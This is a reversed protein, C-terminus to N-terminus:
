VCTPEEIARVDEAPILPKSPDLRTFLFASLLVMAAIPYLPADYGGASGALYGFLVSCVFGGFQGASNMAGTVAGAHERGIDLCLAWASPLMGDMVGLGLTLLIVAPAKGPILATALILAASVALSVSGVLRRGRGPGLRRALRDSLVGGTLSG